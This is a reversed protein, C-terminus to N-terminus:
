KLNHRICVIRFFVTLECFLVSHDVFVHFYFSGILIMNLYWKLSLGGFTGFDSLTLPQCPRSPVPIILCQQCSHFNSCDKAFCNQITFDLISVISHRKKSDPAALVHTVNPMAANISLYCFFLPSPYYFSLSNPHVWESSFSPFAFIFYIIALQLQPLIEPVEIPHSFCTVPTLIVGNIYLKHQHPSIHPLVLFAHLPIVCVIWLITVVSPLSSAPM